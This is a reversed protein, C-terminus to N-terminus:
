KPLRSVRYSTTFYYISNFLLKNLLNFPCFGISLNLPESAQWWCLQYWCVACLINQTATQQSKSSSDYVMFHFKFNHRLRLVATMKFCFLVDFHSNVNTCDMYLTNTQFSCMDTTLTGTKFYGRRNM